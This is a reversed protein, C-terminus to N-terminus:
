FTCFPAPEGDSRAMRSTTLLAAIASAADKARAIAVDLCESLTKPDVPLGGPKNVSCLEGHQNVAISMTGSLAEEEQATPDVLYLVEDGCQYLAFSSSIPLHHVSIPVPERASFSHMVAEDGELSLAEHRFNMLACLAAISCVDGLSGGDNLVHIDCRISWVSRGGLVCLSENDFAKSGRLVREVYNCISVAEASPKGYEYKAPNAIQGIEVNFFLRGENPHDPMPETIEGSVCSSVFTEGM